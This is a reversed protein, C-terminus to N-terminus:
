CGFFRSYFSRAIKTDETGKVIARGDPFLMAEMMSESFVLLHEDYHVRGVKKLEATLRTFDPKLVRAPVIQAANRGCFKILRDDRNNELFLYQGRGCCACAPDRKVELWETEQRWVDIHLLGATDGEQLLIKLGLTCAMAATTMVATNMIGVRDCTPPLSDGLDAQPFLCRLCPGGPRIAMAMGRTQIVGVYVWPIRHKVCADNILMRTQFNDTGDMVLSCGQIIEEINAVHVDDVRFNVSIESNIERMRSAAAQAKPHGIDKECFLVQRQLNSPEIVDRDVLLLEGVGARGLLEAHVTGLAGCGIIAVRGAALKEQGAAGIEPLIFQRSYRNALPAM